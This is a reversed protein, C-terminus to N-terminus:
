EATPVAFLDFFQNGNFFYTAHQQRKLMEAREAIKSSTYTALKYVDILRTGDKDAKGRFAELLLTTFMGNPTRQGSADVGDDLAYSVAGSLVFRGSAHGVGSTVRSNVDKQLVADQTAMFGSFCTDLIVAMRSAPIAHILPLLREQGLGEKRLLADWAYDDDDQMARELLEPNKSGFGFPAFTYKGDVDKGHGAFFIMVLDDPQAKAAIDKLVSIIQTSTAQKDVLLTVSAKGYVPVSPRNMLQALETADRVTTRLDLDPHGYNGVGVSLM